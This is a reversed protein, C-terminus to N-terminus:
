GAEVAAAFVTLLGSWGEPSDIGARMAEAREGHVELGRHVLDVRTTTPGEPVFVVEVETATAPDPDYRFGPSLHWGLLIRAPPEWELVRGWDCEAGDPAREFWRGGAQPEIVVAEPVQEGIHHSDMLWWTSMGATFVEFARAQSAEVTITKSVAIGTAHDIM